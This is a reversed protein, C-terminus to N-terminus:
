STPQFQVRVSCQEGKALELSTECTLVNQASAAPETPLPTLVKFDSQSPCELAVLLFGDGRNTVTLTKIAGTDLKQSGFNLAQPEASFVPAAALPGAVLTAVGVQFLVFLLARPPASRDCRRSTPQMSM